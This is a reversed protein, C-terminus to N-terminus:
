ILMQRTRAPWRPTITWAWTPTGLAVSTSSGVRLRWDALPMTWIKWGAAVFADHIQWWPLPAIDDHMRSAGVLYALPNRFRPESFDNSGLVFVGPVRLLGGMAELLPAVAEASSANDGTSVVLDPQLGALRSIFDIKRRQYPMLHMDSIHLVRIERQGAPLVPVTARRVIFARAEVWAGAAVSAGLAATAGLGSALVGVRSM